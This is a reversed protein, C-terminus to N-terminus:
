REDAIRGDGERSRAWGAWTEGRFWPEFLAPDTLADILTVMPASM